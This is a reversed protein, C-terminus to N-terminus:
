SRPLSRIGRRPQMGARGGPRTHRSIVAFHVGCHRPLSPPATFHRRTLIKSMEGFFRHYLALATARDNNWGHSFVFVDTIGQSAVDTVFRDISEQDTPLGDKNFELTWFPFGDLTEAM